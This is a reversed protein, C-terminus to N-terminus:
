RLTLVGLVFALYDHDAKWQRADGEDSRFPFLSQMGVTLVEWSDGDYMKGTYQEVFEDRKVFEESSDLYSRAKEDKTRRYHFAAEMATLGPIVREMRHGLEHVAVHDMRDDDALWIESDRNLPMARHYGRGAYANGTSPSMVMTVKGAANSAEVWRAPYAMAAKQISVERRETPPKLEEYAAQGINLPWDRSGESDSRIGLEIGMHETMMKTFADRKIEDMELELAMRESLKEQAAKKLAGIDVAGSAGDESFAKEFADFIPRLKEVVAAIRELLPAHRPDESVYDQLVGYVIRGFETVVQEQKIARESPVISLTKGMGERKDYWYANPDGGTDVFSSTPVQHPGDQVWTVRTFRKEKDDWSSRDWTLVWRGPFLAKSVEDLRLLPRLEWHLADSLDSSVGEGGSAARETADIARQSSMEEAVLDVWMGDPSDPLVQGEPTINRNRWFVTWIYNYVEPSIETSFDPLKKTAMGDHSKYVYGEKDEVNQDLYKEAWEKRIDENIDRVYADHSQKLWQFLYSSPDRLIEDLKPRKDGGVLSPLMPLIRTKVRTEFRERWFGDPVDPVEVEDKSARPMWPALKTKYFLSIDSLFVPEPTLEEFQVSGDEIASISHHFPANGPYMVSITSSSRGIVWGKKWEEGERRTQVRTGAKPLEFITGFKKAFKGAKGRPHLHEQWESFVVGAQAGPNWGFENISDGNWWVERVPVDLSLVKWGKGGNSEIHQRAYAPSLTVWDGANIDGVGGPVARYITVKVDPKGRVKKIAAASELDWETGKRGGDYYDSLHDYFKPDVILGMQDLSAGFDISPAEHSSRYSPDGEGGSGAKSLVNRAYPKVWKGKRYHGHVHIESAGVFGREADSLGDSAIQPSPDQDDDEDEVVMWVDPAPPDDLTNTEVFQRMLEENSAPVPELPSM